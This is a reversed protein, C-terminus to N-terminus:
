KKNPVNNIDRGAIQGYNNGKIKQKSKNKEYHMGGFFGLIATAIPVIIEILIEKSM